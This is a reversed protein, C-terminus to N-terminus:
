ETFPGCLSWVEGAALGHRKQTYVESEFSPPRVQLTGAGIAMSGSALRQSGPASREGSPWCIATSSRSFERFYLEKTMKELSSRREQFSGRSSGAERVPSRWVAFYAGSPRRKM